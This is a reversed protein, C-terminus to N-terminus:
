YQLSWKINVMQLFFAQLSIQCWFSYMVNIVATLNNNFINHKWRWQRCFIMMIQIMNPFGERWLLYLRDNMRSAILIITQKQNLINSSNLRINISWSAFAICTPFNFHCLITREAGLASIALSVYIFVSFSPTRM